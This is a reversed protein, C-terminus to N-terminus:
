KDKLKTQSKGFYIRYVQNFPMEICVTTLASIAIVSFMEPVHLLLLPSYYEPTRQVGVNYFFIPFQTLYVGYAIKNFFKFVRSEVFSTGKENTYNNCVAWHTISMYIGWMVPSFAAFIAAPGPSFTYGELGMQYPYCLTFMMLGVAFAWLARVQNNSLTFNLRKTRIFYAMAVGILYITARHTPLIYCFKAADLLKQVSIGFYVFMSISYWYISLYRLLTSAAAIAVILTWGLTRWKWLVLMLPLTAVYLQMDIGIQHTHTLCSDGVNKHAVPLITKTLAKAIALNQRYINKDCVRIHEEVGPGVAPRQEGLQGQGRKFFLM